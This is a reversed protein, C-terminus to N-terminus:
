FFLLVCLSKAYSTIIGSVQIYLTQCIYRGENQWVLVMFYPVLLGATMLLILCRRFVQIRERQEPTSYAKLNKVHECDDAVKQGLLGTESAVAFAIEDLEQIFHLATLNLVLDIVTTSQMSLIFSDFLLLCGVLIQLVGTVLWRGWNAHPSLDSM